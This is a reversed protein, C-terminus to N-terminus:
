NRSRQPHRSALRKKSGRTVPRADEFADFLRFLLFHMPYRQKLAAWSFPDKAELRETMQRSRKRMEKECKKLAQEYGEFGSTLWQQVSGVTAAGVGHEEKIEKYSKGSLLERAIVLRRGFMIAESESLLDKFFHKVEDRNRLTAVSTWFIDLYEKRMFPPLQAPKVKGKAM